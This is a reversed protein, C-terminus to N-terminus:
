LSYLMTACTGNPCRFAAWSFKYAWVSTDTPMFGLGPGNSAVSVLGRGEICDCGDFWGAAVKLVGARGCRRVLTGNAAGDSGGGRSAVEDYPVGAAAGGGAPYAAM